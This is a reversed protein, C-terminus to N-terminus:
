RTKRWKIANKIVRVISRLKQKIIQKYLIGKNCVEIKEDRNLHGVLDKAVRYYVIKKFHNITDLFCKDDTIYQDIPMLIVDEKDKAWARICANLKAHEKERDQYTFSTEGPYKRESGLLLVLKTKSRTLIEYIASLSQITVEFNENPVHEFNMLFSELDKSSYELKSPRLVDNEYKKLYEERTIDYKRCYFAVYKNTAKHRYLGLSADTVMSLVLYDFQKHRLQTQFSNEDFWICQSLITDREEQTMILSSAIQACHNHGAISLGVDNVYTFEHKINDNEKIFSFVQSIDCPGKFLISHTSEVSEKQADPAANQIQNIWKPIDSKNLETVVGGIVHIEPCNLQMYVYQEVLMGLTRCSFLYHIAKNDRICFFGVIGYDGFRDSVTVYGSDVSTDCFLAMLEEKSCRNKTYNLQNSRMALEHLRDLNETCDRHITVNINCSMLFDENSSYDRQSEVKAELVKYQKLRKHELDTKPFTHKTIPLAESPLLAMMNENFYLAEKINQINDDIFLVNEARLNMSDIIGKIRNGKPEWNISPFVFFEWLGYEELKGKVTCYDNKSCISHMIGSDITNKIFSAFEEVIEVSGESITGNWLTEDLDWIVLKIKDVSITTEM